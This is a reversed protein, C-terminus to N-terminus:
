STDGENRTVLASDDVARAPVARPRIRDCPRAAHSGRQGARSVGATAPAHTPISAAAVPLASEQGTPGALLHGPIAEQGTEPSPWGADPPMVRLLQTKGRDPFNHGKAHCSEGCRGHRHAVSM